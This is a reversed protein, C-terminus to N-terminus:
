AGLYECAWLSGRPFGLCLWVNMQMNRCTVFVLMTPWCCFRAANWGQLKSWLHYRIKGILYTCYNDLNITHVDSQSMLKTLRSYDLRSKRNTLMSAAFLAHLTVGHEFHNGPLVYLSSFPCCFPASTTPSCYVRCNKIQLRFSSLICVDPFTM